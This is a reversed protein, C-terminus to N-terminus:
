TARGHQFSELKVYECPNSVYFSSCMDKKVDFISFMLSTDFEILPMDHKLHCIQQGSYKEHNIVYPLEYFNGKEVLSFNM